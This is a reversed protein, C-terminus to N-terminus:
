PSGKASPPPCRRAPRSQPQLCRGFPHRESHDRRCQLSKQRRYYEAEHSYGYLLLNLRPVLLRKFHDNDRLEVPSHHVVGIRLWGQREFESLKAAHWEVQEVGLFGFHGFRGTEILEAYQPDDPPIDHIEAMTSNLPAVVIKVDDFQAEYFQDCMHTFHKWKAAFPPSPQKGEAACSNFYAECAKRNIDHNGPVIVVRDRKLNLHEALGELFQRAAEFEKPMGSETVDGSVVILQPQLNDANRLRTLEEGFMRVKAHILEMVPRDGFEGSRPGFQLNSLHLLTITSPITM